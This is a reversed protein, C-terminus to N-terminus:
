EEVGNLSWLQQCLIETGTTFGGFGSVSLFQSALCLVVFAMLFEMFIGVYIIGAGKIVDRIARDTDSM